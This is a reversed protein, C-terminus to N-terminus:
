EAFPRTISHVGPVSGRALTVVARPGALEKVLEDGAASRALFALGDVREALARVTARADSRRNALTVAVSYGLDAAALEFGVVLNAYYEGELHPLVLGLSPQRQSALSSAAGSPVYQLDAVAQLVRDRTADAVAVSGRMVRSVTSISVGAREAVSYITVTVRGGDM